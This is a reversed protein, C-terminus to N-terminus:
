WVSMYHRHSQYVNIKYRPSGKKRYGKADLWQIGYKQIYQIRHKCCCWVHRDYRTYTMSSRACCLPCIYVACIYVIGIFLCFVLYMFICICLRVCASTRVCYLVIEIDIRFINDNESQKKKKQKENIEAAITTIIIIIYKLHSAVIYMFTM